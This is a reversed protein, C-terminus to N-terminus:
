ARIDAKEYIRCLAHLDCYRCAQQDRPAVTADGERFARALGTLKERWEELQEQWSRDRPRNVNPLLEGHEAIGIFRMAGRKIRAFVVGAIHGEATVAYLPLQPESPRETQWYQLTANGTKYDIIVREGGALEDIRDIRMTINIDNFALRHWQEVSIVKFAARERELMLWEKLLATLRQQELEAFRRTFTEPRIAAQRKLTKAVVSHIVTNMENESKQRLNDSTKLRQWLHQLVEHVLSGREAPTPGIDQLSLSDAHLRHKAFARFPCAAQNKLIATGGRVLGSDTIKPAIDDVFTEFRGSRFVVARFDDADSEHPVTRERLFGAILPSPRLDQDQEKGAYSFVIEGASNTLEETIQRAQQYQRKATAEPVDAATQLALPIFPAPKAAPPWQQDHAGLVWLFDFQMGAAGPIGLIQIPTEVTEPQFSSDSVIQSLRSLAQNYTANESIRDLSSLQQLADQWATSIQYEESNLPREGPWGLQALWGSFTKAWDHLSQKEPTSLFHTHFKKLSRIFIPCQKHSGAQKEAFQFLTKVTLSKEGYERLCADFSARKFREADRGSLYPSLLVTSLQSLPIKRRGLALLTMAVHVMGYSSLPRGLSITYPKVETDEFQILSEPALVGSFESEILARQSKLNLAIIGIRAEPGDILKQKAWQAARRIEDRSDSAAFAEASRNKQCIAAKSVRCGAAMLAQILTQQQATHRDFGYLVIHRDTQRSLNDAIHDPLSFSDVWNNDALTREYDQVWMRFNYADDNLYIDEPFVPIGASKCTQYSHIALRATAIPYLCQAVFNSRQVMNQWLAQQQCNNLLIPQREMTFSMAQWERRCWGTWSIVDPTKWATESTQLRLMAYGYRLHRSLRQTPTIIEAADSIYRIIDENM